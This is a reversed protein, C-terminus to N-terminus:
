LIRGSMSQIEVYDCIIVFVAAAGCNNVIRMVMDVCSVPQKFEYTISLGNIVAIPPNALNNNYLWGAFYTSTNAIPSVTIRKLLYKTETFVHDGTGANAISATYYSHQLM